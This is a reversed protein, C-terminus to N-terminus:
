GRPDRPKGLLTARTVTREDGFRESIRAAIQELRRRKEAEADPILRLPPGGPEIGSVSVGTLRVRRSEIPMRALIAVAARYIADTDQVAEPLTARRSRITFDAYKVKVVVTRAALGSRILRRAVRGAHELLTRRISEVDRLDDEYTEEAGISKAAGSPDVERDDEGRALLIMQEGWTGFHAVTAKPDAGALQGITAFGLARMKPATKPGVGWMREIPLPALFAAVGDPPVVVLGDPKRLDSAIKAAFKCPAVGASATLALERRIDDKIARATAEGDGFLGRSATVDLFAEDLSLGEVLPTYRRFIAFVQASAAEYRDRRPPVVIAHPARRLAEGMSMASRVGFPRVEYSAALVVGRRRSGGVILPKGRLGPDDRQEVSAYFADMDVHLVTRM